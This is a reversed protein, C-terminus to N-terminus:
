INMTTEVRDRTSEDVDLEIRCAILRDFIM